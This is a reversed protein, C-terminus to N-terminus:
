IVVPLYFSNLPNAPENIKKQKPNQKGGDAAIFVADAAFKGGDTAIYGADAAFM